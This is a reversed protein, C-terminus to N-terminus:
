DYSTSTANDDTDADSFYPMCQDIQIRIIKDKNRIRLNNNDIYYNVEFPGEWAPELKNKKTNNLTKVLDGAKYIPYKRTINEDLRRKTREMEVQIRERTKSINEKHKKRWKRILDQYTLNPSTNVTSPINPTRGFTLEYPSHGTTQNTSTNIVFNIYKLNVDWQKNNDAIRTKILNGQKSHMREINGNSQPHFASTKIHRINLANEFQTMLQSLFNSGQDSLITKPPGFTYIYHDILAEIISDSSETQLTVLVTYRTLRDQMSIIYRNGKQTEPLPGFIDLVLKENPAIPIDPLISKAQNNIRIRKQLQCIPCSQM